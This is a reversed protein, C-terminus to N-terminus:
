GRWEQTPFLTREADADPDADTCDKRPTAAIDLLKFRYPPRWRIIFYSATKDEDDSTLLVQWLTPDLRCHMSASGFTGSFRGDTQHQKRWAQFQPRKAPEVWREDDIWSNDEAADPDLWANVFSRPGLAIPDIRTLKAGDFGYHRIADYSWVDIDFSSSLFDILVDDAGVSGMIAPWRARLAGPSERLMQVPQEGDSGIRWVGYYVRSYNSTCWTAQGLMMVLGPHPKDRLPSVHVADIQQPDYKRAPDIPEEFQWVRQLGKGKRRYVYVSNDVGCDGIILGTKVILAQAPEEYEIRVDSLFGVDDCEPELDDPDTQHPKPILDADRLAANVETQLTQIDETGQATLKTEIWDRLIEKAPMARPDVCRFDPGPGPHDQGRFPTLIAHLRDLAPEAAQVTVTILLLALGVAIRLLNM